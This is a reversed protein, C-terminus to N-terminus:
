LDTSTKPFPGPYDRGTAIKYAEEYPEEIDTAYDYNTNPEYTVFNVNGRRTLSVLGIDPHFTDSGDKSYIFVRIQLNKYTYPVNFLFHTIEKTNNIDHLLLEIIEIILIRAEDKTLKSNLSFSISERFSKDDKESGGRGISTVGYRKNLQKISNNIISNLKEMNKEYPTMEGCFFNFLSALIMPITMFYIKLM